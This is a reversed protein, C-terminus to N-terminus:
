WNEKARRAAVSELPTNTETRYLLPGPDSNSIVKLESIWTCAPEISGLALSTLQSADTWSGLAMAHVNNVNSANLFGMLSTVWAWDNLASDTWAARCNPGIRALVVAVDTRTTSNLGDTSTASYVKRTKTVTDENSAHDVFTIYPPTAMCLPFSNGVRTSAPITSGKWELTTHGLSVGARTATTHSTNMNSRKPFPMSTVECTGFSLTSTNNRCESWSNTSLKTGVVSVVEPLVSRTDKWAGDYRVVRPAPTRKSPVGLRGDVSAVAM